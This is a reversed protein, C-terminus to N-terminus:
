FAGAEPTEVGALGSADAAAAVVVTMRRVKQELRFRISGDLWGEILGQGLM